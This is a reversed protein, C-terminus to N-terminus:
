REGWDGATDIAGAPGALAVAGRLKDVAALASRAADAVSGILHAMRDLQLPDADRWVTNDFSEEAVSALADVKGVAIRVADLEADLNTTM